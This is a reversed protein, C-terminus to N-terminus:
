GKPILFGWNLVELPEAEAARLSFTHPSQLAEPIVWRRDRDSVIIESGKHLNSVRESGTKERIFHVYKQSGWLTATFASPISNQM